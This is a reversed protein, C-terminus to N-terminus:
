RRFPPLRPEPAPEALTRIFQAAASIKDKIEKESLGKKRLADRWTVLGEVM